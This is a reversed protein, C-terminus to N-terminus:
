NMTWYFQKHFLRIHTYAIVDSAIYRKLYPFLNSFNAVWGRRRIATVNANVITMPTKDLM